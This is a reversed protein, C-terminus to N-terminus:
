STKIYLSVFVIAILNQLSFYIKYFLNQACVEARSIRPQQMYKSNKLIEKSNSNTLFDYFYQSRKVNRYKGSCHRKRAFGATLGSYGARFRNGYILIRVGRCFACAKQSRFSGGLRPRQFENKILFHDNKRM